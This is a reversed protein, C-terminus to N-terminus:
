GLVAVRNLSWAEPKEAFLAKTKGWTDKFFDSFRYHNLAAEDQWQSYTFYINNSNTEQWLELHLCGEFGRIQEKRDEFLALFQPVLESKFTMKVVRVIM